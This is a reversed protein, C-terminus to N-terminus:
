CVEVADKPNLHIEVNDRYEKLIFDISDIIFERDNKGDVIYIFELLRSIISLIEKVYYLSIPPMKWSIIDTFSSYPPKQNPPVSEITVGGCKIDFLLYWVYVHENDALFIESIDPISFTLIDNDIM